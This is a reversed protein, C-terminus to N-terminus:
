LLILIKRALVRVDFIDVKKKKKIYHLSMRNIVGTNLGQLTEM